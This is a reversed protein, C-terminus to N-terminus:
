LRGKGPKSRNSFSAQIGRVSTTQNRVARLCEPLNLSPSWTTSCGILWLSTRSSAIVGRNNTAGSRETACKAELQIWKPPYRRREAPYDDVRNRMIFVEDNSFVRRILLYGDTRFKEIQEAALPVLPCTGRKGSLHKILFWHPSSGTGKDLARLTTPRVCNNLPPHRPVMISASSLLILQLIRNPAGHTTQAQHGRSGEDKWPM